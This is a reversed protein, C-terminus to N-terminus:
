SSRKSALYVIYSSMVRKVYNRTEKFPISEVWDLPDTGARPDGYKDLWENVRGPGANYAAVTVLFSNDFQQLLNGLYYSGVAINYDRNRKMQALDIPIGALKGVHRATDDMVQMYGKAGVPSVAADMFSTEERIVALVLETEVRGDHWAMQVRPYGMEILPIGLNGARRAIGVAVDPVDMGVALTAAISMTKPDQSDGLDQLAKAVGQRNGASNAAIADKGRGSKTATDLDDRTFVARPDTRIVPQTGLSVAAAQGYFTYGYNASLTFFTRSIETKNVAALAKGLWYGSFAKDHANTASEAMAKFHGLAVQVNGLRRFAVWGAVFHADVADEGSRAYDSALDYAQRASGGVALGMIRARLAPWGEAHASRPALTGFALAAAGM